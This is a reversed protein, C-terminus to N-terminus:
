IIVNKHPQRSQLKAALSVGSDGIKETLFGELQGDIIAINAKRDFGDTGYEFEITKLVQGAQQRENFYTALEYVRFAGDSHRVTEADSIHINDISLEELKEINFFAWDTFERLHKVEAADSKAYINFDKALSKVADQLKVKFQEALDQDKDKLTGYAANYHKYYKIPDMALIIDALKNIYTDAYKDGYENAIDIFKILPYTTNDDEKVRHEVFSLGEDLLDTLAIDSLGNKIRDLLIEYGDFFDFIDIDHKMSEKLLRLLPQDIEIEMNKVPEIYQSFFYSLGHVKKTLAIDVFKNIFDIGHIKFFDPVWHKNDPIDDYVVSRICFNVVDFRSNDYSKMRKQLTEWRRNQLREDKSKGLGFVM